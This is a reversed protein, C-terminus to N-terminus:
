NNKAQAIFALYAEGIMKESESDALKISGTAIMAAIGHTFIWIKMYLNKAAELSIGISESIAKAVDLNEEDGFMDSFGNLGMYESMFLLRFLNSDNKAFGIYALGLEHFFNPGQAKALAYENFYKGVFRYFEKKLDTMTEYHSFIPQTSCGIVKSLSRANVNEFGNEKTIKFAAQLIMEKTIKQKPAMIDDRVKKIYCM